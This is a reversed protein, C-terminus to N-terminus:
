RMRYTGVFRRCGRMETATPGLDGSREVRGQGSIGAFKGTGGAYTWVYGEPGISDSGYIAHGDTDRLVCYGLSQTAGGRTEFTGTCEVAMSDFAPHTASTGGRVVYSAFRADPAAAVVHMPGGFCLRSDIEGERPLEAAMAAAALLSLALVGPTHRIAM